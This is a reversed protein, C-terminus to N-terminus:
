TEGRNFHGESEDSGIRTMSILKNEGIRGAENWKYQRSVLWTQITYAPFPPSSVCSSVVIIAPASSSVSFVALSAMVGMDSVKAISILAFSSLHNKPHIISFIM